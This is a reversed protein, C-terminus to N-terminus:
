SVVWSSEVSSNLRMPTTPTFQGNATADGAICWHRGNHKMEYKSVYKEQTTQTLQTVQTRQTSHFSRKLWHTNTDLKGDYAVTDTLKNCISVCLNSKLSFASALIPDLSLRRWTGYLIASCNESM